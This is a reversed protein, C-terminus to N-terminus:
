NVTLLEAFVMTSQKGFARLEVIRQTTPDEVVLRGDVKLALVYPPEGAVGRRLRHRELNRLAEVAFGGSETPLTLLVKGSKADSISVMPGGDDNLALDRSAVTAMEPTVFNGIGTVRSAFGFVVVSLALLGAGILIIPPIPREPTPYLKLPKGDVSKLKEIM